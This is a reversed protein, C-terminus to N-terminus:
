APSPPSPARCTRARRPLCAAALAGSRARPGARVAVACGAGLAAPHAMGGPLTPRDAAATGALQHRLRPLFDGSLRFSDPVIDTINANRRAVTYGGDLRKRFAFDVGAAAVEPAGALPATRLVSGLVKLQPLDIGLNGCFLRSWAGGALVVADCAIRGKETVVGSIRGARPRSAASPAAPSCPRVAGARRRPSRRRPRPRSRGATPRRTCARRRFATHRRAAGRGAGRGRLLRASSRFAARTIWGGSRRRWNAETSACISSAPRRPLRDRGGVAANMGRWLRLSELSLPIERRTAAWRAAGAGTAARSSAASAVRRASRWRSPRERRPLARHLRRRHRRRRDGRRHQPSNRCRRCGSRSTAGDSRRRRHCPAARCQM